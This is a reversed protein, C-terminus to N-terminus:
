SGSQGALSVPIQLVASGGEPPSFQGSSVRAVVCDVLSKPLASGPKAKASQVEGNPGVKTEVVVKGEIKPEDKLSQNLCRRFGAAMSAVVANANAVNASSTVPGINTFSSTFSSSFGQEEETLKAVLQKALPADVALDASAALLVGSAYLPESFALKTLKDRAPLKGGHGVFFVTFKHNDCTTTVIEGLPDVGTKGATCGLATIAAQVDRLTADGAAVRGIRPTANHPQLQGLGGGFSPFPPMPPMAPMQFAFSRRANPSPAMSIPTGTASADDVSDADETVASSSAPTPEADSRSCAVLAVAPVWLALYKWSLSRKDHRM